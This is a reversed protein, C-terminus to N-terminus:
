KDAVPADAAGTDEVEAQVGRRDISFPLFRAEAEEALLEEWRSRIGQISTEPGIAWICGGAGAGTFRAAGGEQRAAKVLGRGLGTLVEPTMKRRLETERDMSDAAGSFNGRVLHEAFRKTCLLIEQWVKRDKGQLFRRVWVRNVTKSEHPVGCYALLLHRELRRHGSAPILVKRSFPPRLPNGPWYWETVGGYAAALQDQLGCPVGAVAGELGHALLAIEKRGMSPRGLQKAAHALAAVLAVAAVSSGGLGSRPPSDSDICVRLGSAGFRAAVSFMLGLPHVFPLADAAFEANGVGSSEVLVRGKRYPFLRVRTRLAVAINVTLPGAAHLPHYFTAIDLTGGMDVRCPASARIAHQELLRHLSGVQHLGRIM